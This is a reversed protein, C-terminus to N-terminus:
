ITMLRYISIFLLTSYYYDGNINHNVTDISNKNRLKKLLCGDYLYRTVIINILMIINFGLLYYNNSFLSVLILYISYFIHAFIMDIKNRFFVVLLGVVIALTGLIYDLRTKYIGNYYFYISLGIFFIYCFDIIYEGHIKM